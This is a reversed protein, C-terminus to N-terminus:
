HDVPHEDVSDHHLVIPRDADATDVAVAPDRLQPGVV